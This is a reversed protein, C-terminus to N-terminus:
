IQNKNDSNNSVQEELKKVRNALTKYSTMTPSNNNMLDAVALFLLGVAPALLLILGFGLWYLLAVNSPLTSIINFFYSAYIFVSACSAIIEIVGVVRLYNSM